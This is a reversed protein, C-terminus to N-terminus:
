PGFVIWNQIERYTYTEFISPNKTRLLNSQIIFPCTIPGKMNLNTETLCSFLQSCFTETKWQNVCNSLVRRAREQRLEIKSFWLLSLCASQRQWWSWWWRTQTNGIKICFMRSVQTLYWISHLKKLSKLFRM